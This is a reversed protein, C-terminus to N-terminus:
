QGGHLVLQSCLIVDYLSYLRYPKTLAKFKHGSSLAPKSGESLIGLLSAIAWFPHLAHRRLLFITFHTIFFLPGVEYDGDEIAEELDERVQM